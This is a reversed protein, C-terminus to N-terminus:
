SLLYLFAGALTAHAGTARFTLKILKEIAGLLVLWVM